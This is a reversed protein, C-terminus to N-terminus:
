IPETAVAHWVTDEICCDSQFTDAFMKFVDVLHMNQWSVSQLKIVANYQYKKFVEKGM